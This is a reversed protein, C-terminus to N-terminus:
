AEEEEFVVKNMANLYAMISAGVIDTSIGRGSYLKGEHRLKVVTEGMAERGEAIAQIQFDDLEFHRGTAQEISRFAADISGDGTSIGEIEREHFLMKMHAMASIDSGTNIVFQVHHYAPPVQMAETAIIAELERFTIWERKEALSSFRNYVNEMDEDTLDYGLKRVAETLTDKPDHVNLMAESEDPHQEAGFSLTHEGSLHCLSRIQATARHIKETGIHPSVDLAQGKIELIRLINPLSVADECVASTKLESIGSQVASIACAEALGMQNSCDFGIRVTHLQDTSQILSTVFGSIEEPLMNGATDCLTIVEAGAQCVASVVQSLFSPDSRTADIALFEVHPTFELCKRLIFVIQELMKQPKKHCLYEMQVSSVPAVVQLRPTAANKVANWTEVVSDETLSVPVSVAAHKVAACVSKVLLGDIKKQRIPELEICDVGFQDIAKCLEIKERFSLSLKEGAHRLTCDSILIKRKMSM